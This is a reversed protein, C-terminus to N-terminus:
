AGPGPPGAEPLARRAPVVRRRYWRMAFCDVLGRFARNGIGYKSRGASRPRHNVAIERVTFGQLQLMTPLFRHMGNFVPLEVLAARRVARYTCGADAVKVGTVGDRFRNAIRSSWRRVWDDERRRRVGCVVDAGELAALLGPIDAPDNQQDADLTIVVEGRAAAFGSACAGSEGCNIRHRVVRLGAHRRQLSSLVELTRDTSRDDVAIVEYPRGVQAMAAEIEALLPPLSGEENYCPVVISIEPGM